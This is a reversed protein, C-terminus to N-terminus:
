CRELLFLLEVLGGCFRLSSLRMVGSIGRSFKHVGEFVGPKWWANQDGDHPMRILEYEALCCLSQRGREGGEFTM